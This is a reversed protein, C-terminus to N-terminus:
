PMPEERQHECEPCRILSHTVVEDPPAYAVDKPAVDANM